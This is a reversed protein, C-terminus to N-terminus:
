REVAMVGLPSSQALTKRAEPALTTKGDRTARIAEALEDLTADKLLYGAARTNTEAGRSPRCGELLM